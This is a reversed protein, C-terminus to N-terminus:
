PKLIQEKFKKFSQSKGNTSFKMQEWNQIIRCDIESKGLIESETPAKLIQYFRGNAVTFSIKCFTTGDKGQYVDIVKAKGSYILSSRKEGLAIEIANTLAHPCGKGTAKLIENRTFTKLNGKTYLVKMRAAPMTLPNFTISHKKGEITFSATLGDEHTTFDQIKM